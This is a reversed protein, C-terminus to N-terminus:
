RAAKRLETPMPVAETERRRQQELYADTEDATPYNGIRPATDPDLEAAFTEVTWEPHQDIVQDLAPEYRQWHDDILTQRYRGPRTIGDGGPHEREARREALLEIVQRKLTTRDDDPGDPGGEGTPLGRNNSSSETSRSPVPRSPSPSSVGNREGNHLPTKDRRSLRWRRQREAAAERETRVQEASPNYRLYNVVTYHDGDDTWRGAAVLKKVIGPKAQAQALLLPIETKPIEGDTDTKACFCLSAVFLDRGAAGLGRNTLNDFFKDDIKVWTM